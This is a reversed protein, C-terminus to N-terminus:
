KMARKALRAQSPNEELKSSQYCSSLHNYTSANKRHATRNQETAPLALWSSTNKM